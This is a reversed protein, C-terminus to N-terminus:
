CRVKQRGYLHIIDEAALRIGVQNSLRGFFVIFWHLELGLRGFPGLLHESLWCFCHVLFYRLLRGVILCRHVGIGHCTRIRM